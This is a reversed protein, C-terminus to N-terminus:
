LCVSFVSCCTGELEPTNHSFAKFDREPKTYVVRGYRSPSYKKLCEPVKGCVLPCRWKIQCHEKNFGYYGYPLGEPLMIDTPDTAPRGQHSASMGTLYRHLPDLNLLYNKNIVEEHLKLQHPDEKKLNTILFDQYKAHSRYEKVLLFVGLIKYHYNIGDPEM